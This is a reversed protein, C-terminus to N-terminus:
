ADAYARKKILSEILLGIMSAFGPSGRDSSEKARQHSGCQCEGATGGGSLQHLIQSLPASVLQLHLLPPLHNM